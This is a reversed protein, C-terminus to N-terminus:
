LSQDLNTFFLKRQLKSSTRIMGITMEFWVRVTEDMFRIFLTEEIYLSVANTFVFISGPM